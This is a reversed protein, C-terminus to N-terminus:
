LAQSNRARGLNRLAFCRFNDVVAARVRKSVAIGIESMPIKDVINCAIVRAVSHKAASAPLITIGMHADVLSILTSLEAATQSIHPVIRADRLMGFILDYFGAAHTREYLVFSQGSVESLRM